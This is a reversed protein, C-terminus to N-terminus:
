SRWGGREGEVVSKRGGVPEARLVGLLQPIRVQAGAVSVRDPLVREGELDGFPLGLPATRGVEGRLFTLVQLPRLLQEGQRLVGTGGLRLPLTGVLAGGVLQLAQDHQRLGGRVRDLLTDGARESGGRRRVLVVSM